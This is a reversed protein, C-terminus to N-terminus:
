DNAWYRALEQMTALQVGQSTDAVTEKEPWRTALIRRRLEDLEAQPVNITFPRIAAREGATTSGTATARAM